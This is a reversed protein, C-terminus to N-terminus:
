RANRQGGGGSGHLLAAARHSLGVQSSGPLRRGEGQKEAQKEEKGSVSYM